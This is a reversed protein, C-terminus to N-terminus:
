ASGIVLDAAESEALGLLDRFLEEQTYAVFFFYGPFCYSRSVGKVYCHHYDRVFRAM